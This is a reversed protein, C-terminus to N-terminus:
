RYQFQYEQCRHDWANNSDVDVLIHNIRALHGSEPLSAPQRAKSNGSATIRNKENTTTSVASTNRLTPLHLSLLLLQEHHRGGHLRGDGSNYTCGVCKGPANPPPHADRIHGGPRDTSSTGCPNVSSRAALPPRRQLTMSAARRERAM